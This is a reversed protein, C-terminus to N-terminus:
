RENRKLILVNRIKKWLLIIIIMNKQQLILQLDKEYKCTSSADMKWLTEPAYAFQFVQYTEIFNPCKNDTVLESLLTSVQVEQRIVEENGMELISKVDMVSIAEMRKKTNNWVKYVSKYAGEALFCGWPFATQM